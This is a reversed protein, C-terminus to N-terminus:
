EAVPFWRSQSYLHRPIRAYEPIANIPFIKGDLDHCTGGDGAYRCRKPGKKYQVRDFGHETYRQVQAEAQLQTNRTRVIAKASAKPSLTSGDARVLGKIGKKELYKRIKPATTSSRGSGKGLRYAEDLASEINTRMQKPIQELTSYYGSQIQAAMEKTIRLALVTEAGAAAAVNDAEKWSDAIIRLVASRTYNLNAADLTGIIEYIDALLRKRDSTSLGVDWRQIVDRLQDEALGYSSLLESIDLEIRDSWPM